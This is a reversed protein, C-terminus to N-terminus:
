KLNRFDAKVAHQTNTSFHLQFIKANHKHKNQATKPSIHVFTTKNNYFNEVRIYFVNILHAVKVDCFLTGSRSHLLFFISGRSVKM